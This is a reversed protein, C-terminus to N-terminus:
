QVTLEGMMEHHALGCYEMCLITYKGAESFQYQVQNVYGPMAQTQFLIRGSPDSVGFGHTVDSTHVNFVVTKGLPIEKQDVEWSWQSGTVNITMDPSSAITHPWTKLSAWTIVAGALLMLLVLRSRKKDINEIPVTGKASAKVARAFFVAVLAMMVLTVILVTLQM